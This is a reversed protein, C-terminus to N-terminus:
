IYSILLSDKLVVKDVVGKTTNLAYRKRVVGPACCSLNSSIHEPTYIELCNRPVNRLEPCNEPHLKDWNNELIRTM